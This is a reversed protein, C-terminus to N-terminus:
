SKEYDFLEYALDQLEIGADEIRSNEQENYFDNKFSFSAYIDIMCFALRKPVLETRDYYSTLFRLAIILQKFRNDDLGERSRLKQPISEEGSLCDYVIELASNVNM